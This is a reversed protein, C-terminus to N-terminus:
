KLLEVWGRHVNYLLRNIITKEDETLVGSLILNKIIQRDQPTIVSSFMVQGFLEELSIQSAYMKRLQRITQKNNETHNLIM